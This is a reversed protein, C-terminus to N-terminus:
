WSMCCEADRTKLHESISSHLVFLFFTGNLSQESDCGEFAM